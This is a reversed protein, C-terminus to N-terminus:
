AVFLYAVIFFNKSATNEICDTGSNTGYLSSVLRTTGHLPPTSYRWRLGTLRLRPRSDRPLRVRSHSRQHPGATITFSLGTREDSLAGWVLLGAVTQCYYCNPRLGWIPAKNWSVTPRSMLSPSPCDHRLHYPRSCFGECHPISWLCLRFNM